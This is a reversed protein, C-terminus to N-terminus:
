FIASFRSECDSEEYIFNAFHSVVFSLSQKHEVPASQVFHIFMKSRKQSNAEDIIQLAGSKHCNRNKRM